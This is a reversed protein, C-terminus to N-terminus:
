CDRGRSPSVTSRSKTVPLEFFRALEAPDKSLGFTEALARQQGDNLGDFRWTTSMDGWCTNTITHATVTVTKKLYDKFLGFKVKQHLDGALSPEMTAPLPFQTIIDQYVSQANVQLALSLIEDALETTEQLRGLAEAEADFSRRVIEGMLRTTTKPQNYDKHLAKSGIASASKGLDASTKILYEQIKNFAKANDFLKVAVAGAPIATIAVGLLQTIMDWSMDPDKKEHLFNDFELAADVAAERQMSIWDHQRDHWHRVHTVAKDRAVAEDRSVPSPSNQRKKRVQQLSELGKKLQQASPAM